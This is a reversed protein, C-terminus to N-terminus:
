PVKTSERSVFAIKIQIDVVVIDSEIPVAKNSYRSFNYKWSTVTIQHNSESYHVNKYRKCMENKHRNTKSQMSQIQWHLVNSLAYFVHHICVSAIKCSGRTLSSKLTDLHSWNAVYEETIMQNLLRLYYASPCTYALSWFLNANVFIGDPM